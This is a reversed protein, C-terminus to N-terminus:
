LFGLEFSEAADTAAVVELVVHVLANPTMGAVLPLSADLYEAPAFNRYAIVQGATDYLVLQLVPYPQAYTSRNSLTANVLLAGQFRPHLRVDRNVVDIATLDHNRLVSCQLRECIREVLPLMAPFRQLLFDRQFWAVQGIGGLLLLVLLLGWAVSAWTQRPAAGTELLELIEVAAATDDLAPAPIALAPRIDSEPLEFQPEATEVVPRRPEDYLRALANFQHGCFGCRVEGAAASLHYARVRFLQSCAPCDTFM